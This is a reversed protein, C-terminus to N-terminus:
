LFFAVNSNVDSIKISVDENIKADRVIIVFGRGVKVNRNGKTVLVEIGIERAGDKSVPPEPQHKLVDPVM